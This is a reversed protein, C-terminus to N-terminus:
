EGGGPDHEEEGTERTYLKEVGPGQIFVVDDEERLPPPDECTIPHVHGNPRHVFLPVAREHQERFDKVDQDRELTVSRVEAGGDFLSSLVAFRGSSCFLTRGKLEMSASDRPKQDSEEGLGAPLQFVNRRGFTEALRVVSLANVEDNATLAVARGYGDLDVDELLTESLVNVQRAPLEEAHAAQVNSLNNDLLLVEAGLKQLERAMRRAWGHAGIIIVGKPDPAVVGLLNAVPKATLGYVTVTAVIVLFTLPILKEAGAVGAEALSLALISSVAAAVIGRPAMWGVFLRERWNLNTGITSVLVALPRVILIVAAVFLFDNLKLQALAEPTIRAALLIFLTSILLLRLNEKFEIIQKVHLGRINRVIVGMLTVALLGAESQIRNAAILAAVVLGLSVPNLLFDPLLDKKILWYLILAAIVGVGGGGVVTLGLGVLSGTLGAELNHAIIEEFVLVALVAGIPDSLIGEWKVASGVKETPRIHRLLPGIVTPGTVVLVAGLLVSLQLSLSTLFWAALATLWWTVFVGVTVLNRVPKGMFKLERWRLSLGGEYLIVAVSINVFPFLLDGMLADPDLLGTLPGAILGLALLLLISPLSFKWSLWQVVVGGVLIAAIM